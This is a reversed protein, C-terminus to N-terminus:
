TQTSHAWSAMKRVQNFCRHGIWAPNSHMVRVGSYQCRAVATRWLQCIKKLNFGVGMAEQQLTMTKVSAPGTTVMLCPSPLSSHTLTQLCQLLFIVTRTKILVQGVQDEM